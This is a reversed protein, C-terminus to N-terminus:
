KKILNEEIYKKAKAIANNEDERTIIKSYRKKVMCMKGMPEVVIVSYSTDAHNRVHRRAIIEYGKFEIKLDRYGNRVEEGM